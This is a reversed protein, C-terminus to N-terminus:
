SDSVLNPRSLDDNVIVIDAFREPTAEAFYLRQGPQYRTEYRKRAASGSRAAEIRAANRTSGSSDASRASRAVRAVRPPLQTTPRVCSSSCAPAWPLQINPRHSAASADRPLRATASGRGHSVCDSRSMSTTERVRESPHRRRRVSGPCSLRSSASPPGFPASHRVERHSTTNAPHFGDYSSHILGDALDQRM